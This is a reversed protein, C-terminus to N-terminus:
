LENKEENEYKKILEKETFIFEKLKSELKEIRNKIESAKQEAEFIIKEAKLKAESIILETMKNTESAKNEDTDNKRVKSDMQEKHYGVAVEATLGFLAMSGLLINRLSYLILNEAVPNNVDFYNKFLVVMALSIVIMGVTVTFLIKGGLVWGFNKSIMWGCVFVFLSLIFWVAFSSVDSKFIETSLFNSLFILVALIGPLFYNYYKEAM